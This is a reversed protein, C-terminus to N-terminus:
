LTLRLFRISVSVDPPPHAVVVPRVVPLPIPALGSEQHGALVLPHGGPSDQVSQVKAVLPLDDNCFKECGPPVGDPSPQDATRAAVADHQMATVGDWGCAHAIGVFLGFLWAGLIMSALAKRHRLASLM